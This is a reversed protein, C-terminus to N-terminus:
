NYNFLTVGFFKNQSWIVMFTKLLPPFNDDSIYTPLLGVSMKRASQFEKQFKIM